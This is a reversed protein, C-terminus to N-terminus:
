AVKELSKYREGPLRAVYGMLTLRLLAAHAKTEELGSREAVEAASLTETAPLVALALALDGGPLNRMRRQGDLGTGLVAVTRGDPTLLAGRNAAADVGLAGGSIIVVGRAALARGLAHARELGRLTAARAGVIAVATSQAGLDPLAGRIWVEAACVDALREVRVKDIPANPRGM